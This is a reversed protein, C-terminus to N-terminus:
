DSISWTVASCKCSQVGSSVRADSPGWLLLSTALFAVVGKPHIMAELCTHVQM